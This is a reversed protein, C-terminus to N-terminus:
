EPIGKQSEEFWLNKQNNLIQTWVSLFAWSLYLLVLHKVDDFEAKFEDTKWQKSSDKWTTWFEVGRSGFDGRLRGICGTQSELQSSQNYSYKREEYSMPRIQMEM